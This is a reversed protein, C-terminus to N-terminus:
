TIQHTNEGLLLNSLKSKMLELDDRETKVCRMNEQILLMSNEYAIDNVQGIEHEVELNVLANNLDAIRKSCASIQKDISEAIIQAETKLQNYASDFATHLEESLETPVKKKEILGKLAQDKRWILPIENCLSDVKLKTNSFLTVGNENIRVQESPYRTIESDGHEVFIDTIQGNPRVIFSAITGVNRGYEDKIPKGLSEFFNSTPNSM